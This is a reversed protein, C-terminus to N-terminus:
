GRWPWRLVKARMVPQRDCEVSNDINTAVTREGPAPFCDKRYALLFQADNRAIFATASAVGAVFAGIGFLTWALTSAVKKVQLDTM